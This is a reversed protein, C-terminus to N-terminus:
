TTFHQTVMSAAVGIQVSVALRPRPRFGTFTGIAAAAADLWTGTAGADHVTVAQCWPELAYVGALGVFQSQTAGWDADSQVEEAATVVLQLRAALPALAYVEVHIPLPVNMVLPVDIGRVLTGNDPLRLNARVVQLGSYTTGVFGVRLTGIRAAVNESVQELEAPRDPPGVYARVPGVTGADLELPTSWVEAM